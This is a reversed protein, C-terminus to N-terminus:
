PYVPIYSKFLEIGSEVSSLRQSLISIDKRIEKSEDSINRRIEKCEIFLKENSTSIEKNINDFKRNVDDFKGHIYYFFGLAIVVVTILVTLSIDVM